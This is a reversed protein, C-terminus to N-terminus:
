ADRGSIHAARAREGERVPSLLLEGGVRRVSLGPCQRRLGEALAGLAEQRGRHGAMCEALAPDLGPVRVSVLVMGGSETEFCPALALLAEPVGEARLDEPALEQRLIRRYLAERINPYQVAAVATGDAALPPPFRVTIFGPGGLAPHAMLEALADVATGLAEIGERSLEPVKEEAEGADAAGDGGRGFAQTCWLVVAAAALLGAALFFFHM